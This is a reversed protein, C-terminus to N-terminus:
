VSVFKGNREANFRAEIQDDLAELHEVQEQVSSHVWFNWEQDFPPTVMGKLPSPTLTKRVVISQPM